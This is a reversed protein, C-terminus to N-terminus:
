GADLRAAGGAQFDQLFDALMADDWGSLESTKNDVAAFARLQRKTLHGAEVCPYTKLKLKQAARYRTHGAAIQGDKGIVIAVLVGFKKISEAVADVARDTIVRPNAPNEHISDLAREVIKM